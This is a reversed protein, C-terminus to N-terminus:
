FTNSVTLFRSFAHADLTITPIAGRCLRFVSRQLGFDTFDTPAKSNAIKSQRRTPSRIPKEGRDPNALTCVLTGLWPKHPKKVKCAYPLAHLRVAFRALTRWLTFRQFCLSSLTFFTLFHEGRNGHELADWVHLRGLRGLTCAHWFVAFCFPPLTDLYVFRITRM